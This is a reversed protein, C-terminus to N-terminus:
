VQRRIFRMLAAIIGIILIIVGIWLLFKVAEVFIGLFLLVLGVIVLIIALAPM